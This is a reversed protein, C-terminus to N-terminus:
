SEELVGDPIEFTKIRSTGGKELRVKSRSVGLWSALFKELADNAKGEVPPAAIRVRLVRGGLADEEWGVIESKRAHPTAKIRLKM